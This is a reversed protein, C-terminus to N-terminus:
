MHMRSLTVYELILQWVDYNLKTSDMACVATTGSQIEIAINITIRSAFALANLNLISLRRLRTQRKGLWLKRGVVAVVTLSTVSERLCAVM